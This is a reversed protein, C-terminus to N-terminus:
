RVTCSANLAAPTYTGAVVWLEDGSTAASLADQVTRYANDWTSGDIPSGAAAPNVRLVASQGPLAALCLVLAIAVIGNWKMMLDRADRVMSCLEM